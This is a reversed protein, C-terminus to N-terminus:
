LIVYKFFVQYIEEVIILYLVKYFKKFGFLYGM